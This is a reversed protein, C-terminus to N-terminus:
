LLLDLKELKWKWAKVRLSDIVMLKKYLIRAKLKESKDPAHDNAWRDALLSMAFCNPNAVVFGLDISEQVKSGDKRDSKTTDGKLM